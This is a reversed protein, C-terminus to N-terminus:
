SHTMAHAAAPRSPQTAATPWLVRADHAAAPTSSMHSHRAQSSFSSPLGGGCHQRHGTAPPARFGVVMEPRQACAAQMCHIGSTCFGGPADGRQQTQMRLLAVQHLLMATRCKKWLSQVLPQFSATSNQLDCHTVHASHLGYVADLSDLLLSPLQQAAHAALAATCLDTQM